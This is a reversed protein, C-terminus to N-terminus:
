NSNGWGTILASSSSLYVGQIVMTRNATTTTPLATTYHYNSNFALTEGTGADTIIFYFPQGIIWSGSVASFTLATNLGTIILAYPANVNAYNSTPVYPSSPANVSVTQVQYSSTPVATITNNSGYSIPTTNISTQTTVGTGGNSVLLTGTVDSSGLAIASETSLTGTGSSTKVYGNSTLNSLTAINQSTNVSFTTSTLTLGTGASYTTGIPVSWSGDGRLFTTSSATGTPQFFTPTASSGTFNSFFSFSPQNVLSFAFTGSTTITSPTVTYIVSPTTVSVSTVTGGSGAPTSWNGDGGMYQTSTGSLKKLFGHQSTSSNNTTIDSAVLNADSVNFTAGLFVNTGNLFISSNALDTNPISTIFSLVGSAGKCYGNSTTTSTTLNDLTFARNPVTVINNATFADFAFYLSFGHSNKIGINGASGMFLRLQHTGSSPSSSQSDLGIWGNQYSSGTVELNKVIVSDTTINGNDTVQQLTLGLKTRVYSYVISTDLKISGTTTIPNSSFLMAYGQSLSTVGTLSAGIFTKIQNMPTKMALSWSTGGQFEQTLAFTNSDVLASTELNKIMQANSIYGLVLCLFTLITILIYDKINFGM